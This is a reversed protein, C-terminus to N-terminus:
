QEKRGEKSQGNRAGGERGEKKGEEKREERDKSGCNSRNLHNLSRVGGLYSSKMQLQSGGSLNRFEGM